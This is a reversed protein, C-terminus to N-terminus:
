GCARGGHATLHGSPDSAAPPLSPPWPRGALKQQGLQLRTIESLSPQAGHGTPPCHLPEWSVSAPGPTPTLLDCSQFTHPCICLGSWPSNAAATPRSHSPWPAHLDCLFSHPLPEIGLPRDPSPKRNRSSLSGPSDGTTEPPLWPGPAVTSTVDSPRPVESRPRLRLKGGM